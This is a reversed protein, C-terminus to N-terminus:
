KLAKLSSLIGVPVTFHKLDVIVEDAEVAGRGDLSFWSCRYAYRSKLM